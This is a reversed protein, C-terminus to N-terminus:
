NKDFETIAKQLADITRMDRLLKRSKTEQVDRIKRRIGNILQSGRQACVRQYYCVDSMKIEEKKKFYRLIEKFFKCERESLKTYAILLINLEEVTYLGRSLYDSEDGHDLLLLSGKLVNNNIASGRLISMKKNRLAVFIYEKEKDILEMAVELLVTRVDEEIAYPVSYLLVDIAEYIFRVKTKTATM